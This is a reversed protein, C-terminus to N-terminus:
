RSSRYTWQLNTFQRDDQRRECGETNNGGRGPTLTKKGFSMGNILEKGWHSSGTSMGGLCGELIGSSSAGWVPSQAAWLDEQLLGESGPVSIESAAYM